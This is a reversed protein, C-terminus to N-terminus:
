GVLGRGLVRLVDLLGEGGHCRLHSVRSVQCSSVVFVTTAATATSTTAATAAAAAAEAATTSAPTSTSASARTTSEEPESPTAPPMAFSRLRNAPGKLIHPSQRARAGRSAPNTPCTARQDSRPNIKCPRRRVQAHPLSTRTAPPAVESANARGCESWRGGVTAAVGGGSGRGVGKSQSGM